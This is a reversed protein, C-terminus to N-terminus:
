DLIANLRRFNFIATLIATVIAKNCTTYFCSLNNFTNISSSGHTFCIKKFIGCKIIQSNKESIAVVNSFLKFRLMCKPCCTRDVYFADNLNKLQLMNWFLVVNSICRYQIIWHRTDCKYIVLSNQITVCTKWISTM